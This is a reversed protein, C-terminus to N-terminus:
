FTNWKPTTKSIEEQKKNEIFKKDKDNMEVIEIILKDKNFNMKEGAQYKRASNSDRTFDRLRKQLGGNSIETAMGIYVIEDNLIARFLGITKNYKSFECDSESLFGVKIWNM